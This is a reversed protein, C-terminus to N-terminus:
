APLAPPRPQCAHRADRPEEAVFLSVGYTLRIEHEIAAIRSALSARGPLTSIYSAAAAGDPFELEYDLRQQEVRHFHRMLVDGGNEASLAWNRPHSDLGLMVDLEHGDRINSRAVAVLAGRSTLVRAIEPLGDLVARDRYLSRNAVVCTWTASGFPLAGADAVVACIGRAHADAMLMANHDVAVVRAPVHANIRAALVGGRAGIELVDGASVAAVASLLAAEVDPGHRYRRQLRTRQELALSTFQNDSSLVFSRHFGIAM